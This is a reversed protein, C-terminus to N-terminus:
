FFTLTSFMNLCLLISSQACVIEFDGNYKPFLILVFILIGLAISIVIGNTLESTLSFSGFRQECKCIFIDM